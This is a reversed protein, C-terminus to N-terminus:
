WSTMTSPKQAVTKAPTASMMYDDKTTNFYFHNLAIRTKM